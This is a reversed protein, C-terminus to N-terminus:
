FFDACIKPSSELPVKVSLLTNHELFTKFFLFDQFM